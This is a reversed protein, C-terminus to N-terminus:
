FRSFYRHEEESVKMSKEFGDSMECVCVCVCIYALAQAHAYVYFVCQCVYVCSMCVCAYELTHVYLCILMYVHM